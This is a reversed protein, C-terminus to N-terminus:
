PRSRGRHSRACLPGLGVGREARRTDTGVFNGEIRNGVSDGRVEIGTGFGHIDLGRIVSGSSDQIRLASAGTGNTGALEIKLSADDGVVKTNLSAGPQTYGDITVPETITPLASQPSITTIGDTGTGVDFNVIDAEPTANAEQIAARFSCFAGFNVVSCQGDGPNADSRDDSLNVTFTTSAHAPPAVLGGMLPPVVFAAAIVTAALAVRAKRAASRRLRLPKTTAATEYM